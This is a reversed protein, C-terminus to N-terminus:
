INNETEFGVGFGSSSPGNFFNIQSDYTCILFPGINAIDFEYWSICNFAMSSSKNFFISNQVFKNSENGILVTFKGMM